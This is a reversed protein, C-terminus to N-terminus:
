CSNHAQVYLLEREHTHKFSYMCLCVFKKRRQQKRKSGRRKFYCTERPIKFFRQHSETEKHCLGANVRFALLKRKVGVFHTRNGREGQGKAHM